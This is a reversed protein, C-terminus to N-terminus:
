GSGSEDALEMVKKIFLNLGEISVGQDRRMRCLVAASQSDLFCINSLEIAVPRGTQGSVERCTKELLEADNLYLTGEVKFLTPEKASTTVIDASDTRDDQCEVTKGRLGSDENRAEVKTIRIPM